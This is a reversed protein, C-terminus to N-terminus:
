RSLDYLGIMCDSEELWFGRVRSAYLFCFAFLLIGGIGRDGVSRFLRQARVFNQILRHDTTQKAM